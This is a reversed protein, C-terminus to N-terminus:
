NVILIEFQQLLTQSLRCSIRWRVCGLLLTPASDGIGERQSAQLYHKTRCWCQGAWSCCPEGFLTWAALETWLIALLPFFLQVAMLKCQNNQKFEPGSCEGSPSEGCDSQDKQWLQQKFPRPLDQESESSAAFPTNGSWDFLVWGSSPQLFLRLVESGWGRGWM